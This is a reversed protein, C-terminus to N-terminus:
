QDYFAQVTAAAGTLAASTTTDTLAATVTNMNARIKRAQEIITM